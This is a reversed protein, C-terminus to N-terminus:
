KVKVIKLIASGSGTSIRIFYTDDPLDQLNFTKESIGEPIDGSFLTKQSSGIQNFIQIDVPADETSKFSLQVIGGTITPNISAELSTPISDTRMRIPVDCKSTAKVDFEIATGEMPIIQDICNMTIKLTDRDTFSFKKVSVPKYVIIVNRKEGAPITLPFQSQPISYLLNSFLRPNDLTITYQGYNLITLTDTHRTGIMRSGFRVFAISDTPNSSFQLTFGPIAKEYEVSNGASDTVSFKFYSDKRPDIVKFNLTIRKSNDTTKQLQGNVEDIIKLEKIGLDSKLSESIDINFVSNCPDQSIQLKPPNTDKLAFIKFIVQTRDACSDEMVLNYEFYGTDQFKRCVDLTKIEGSKLALPLYQSLTDNGYISKLFLNTLTHNFKGYNKVPIQWCIDKDVSVTDIIVLTDATSGAYPDVGVTFGPIDYTKTSYLGTSDTVKLYFSGDEYKNVLDATFHVVPTPFNSNYNFNINVSNALPVELTKIHTDIDTSDTAYGELHYCKIEAGLQPPRYDYKTLNMGGYYGYSNAYGYGYVMLGFGAPAMIEHTGEQVGLYCYSFFSNPVKKFFNKDIINGDFKIQSTLSDQAVIEIYHELYVPHRSYPYTQDVEYSQINAIRYFNGFQEIPPVIMMLPDSMENDGGSANASKASKKYQAVLIPANSEIYHPETLDFEFFEGKNYTGVSIGDVFIESNDSSAMVRFLDNVDLATITPSQAFPAVIANRGWATIPPLQEMLCDRSIGDGQIPLKARQQGSILVIPKTSLVRSGSLDFNLNNRKVDAQVLYCDGKNLVVNQINLQNVRTPCKPEITVLTSDETAIVVFQSPTSNGSPINSGYDWSGDSNYTLVLYENGLADTPLATLSEATTIAQEHAYITVDKTTTVHFSQKGITECQRNDGNIIDNSNNFGQLEYGKYPLSFRFINKPNTITFNFTRLQGQIDKYDIQGSCTDYAVIFIYISDTYNSVPMTEINHYNPLFAIWFDNGKSDILGQSKSTGFSCIFVLIFVLLNYIKM